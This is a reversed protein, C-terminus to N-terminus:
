KPKSEIFTQREIWPTTWEAKLTTQDFSYPFTGNHYVRKSVEQDVYAPYGAKRAERFFPFDETTYSELEHSYEMLFRPKKVAKLVEVDILCFGFGGYYCEQLSTSETTTQIETINEDKDIKTATFFGPPMKRRYNALVIPMQRALAINLCDESFGMDDDIFLLHNCGQAIAADCMNDRAQGINAGVQMQTIIRKNSYEQALVPTQLFHLVLRTLSMAYCAHITGATPTAISVSLVKSM